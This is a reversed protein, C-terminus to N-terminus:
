QSTHKYSPLPIEALDETAYQYICTKKTNATAAIGAFFFPWFVFFAVGGGVGPLSEYRPCHSGTTIKIEPSNNFISTLAMIDDNYSM